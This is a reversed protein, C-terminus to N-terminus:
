QPRFITHLPAVSGDAWSFPRAAHECPTRLYGWRVTNRLIDAANSARRRTTPTWSGRRSRVASPYKSVRPAPGNVSRAPASPPHPHPRGPRAASIWPEVASRFDAANKESLDLVYHNGDVSFRITNVEDDKLPSNDIDDFYQTIERRAM